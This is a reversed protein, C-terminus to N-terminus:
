EHGKLYQSLLEGFRNIDHEALLSDPLGFERTLAYYQRVVTDFQGLQEAGVESHSLRVVRVNSRRMQQMAREVSEFQAIVHRYFFVLAVVLETVEWDRNLAALARKNAAQQRLIRVWEYYERRMHGFVDIPLESRFRHIM